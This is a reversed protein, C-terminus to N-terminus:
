RASRTAMRPTYGRGARRVTGDRLADNRLGLRGALYLGWYRLRLQLPSRPSAADRASTRRMAVQDDIREHILTDLESKVSELSDGSVTLGLDVCHAEWGGATEEAFCRVAVVRTTRM